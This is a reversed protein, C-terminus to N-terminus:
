GLNNTYLYPTNRGIRVTTRLMQVDSPDKISLTLLLLEWAKRGRSISDCASIREQLQGNHFSPVWRQVNNDVSRRKMVRSLHFKENPAIDSYGAPAQLLWRHSWITHKWASWRLGLQRGPRRVLVSLVSQTWWGRYGEPLGKICCEQRVIILTVPSRVVLEM